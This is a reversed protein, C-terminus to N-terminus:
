CLYMFWKVIYVFPHNQLNELFAVQLIDLLLTDGIHSINNTEFYGDNYPSQFCTAFLQYSKWMSCKKVLIVLLLDM